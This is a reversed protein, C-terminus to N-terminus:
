GLLLSPDIVVKGGDLEAVALDNAADIEAEMEADTLGSSYGRDKAYSKNLETIIPAWMETDDIFQSLRRKKEPDPSSPVTYFSGHQVIHGFRKADEVLGFYKKPGQAYSLFMESQYFPKVIRNKVTLFRLISANFHQGEAKGNANKENKKSCQIILHAAYVVGRGGGMPKVKTAHMAAPDDYTHNILICSTDSKLAPIILAKVLSNIKKARGGMESVQKGKEVADVMTKDTVLMGLSDLICLFKADPNDKKYESLKKYTTLLKVACDEVSEVLVHEIKDPDCGRSEFFEVLGGGESDFYFIVDYDEENLANAAINAAIFSKGSNHSAIGGAFYRHNEHAVEIDYCMEKTKLDEIHTVAAPYVSGELEVKTIDYENLDKVFVFKEIGENETDTLQLAHEAACELTLKREKEEFTGDEQEVSFKSTTTVSWIDQEGKEFFNAIRVLGDPSSVFLGEHNGNALLKIPLEKECMQSMLMVKILTLNTLNRGIWEYLTIDKPRDKSFSASLLKNPISTQSVIEDSTFGFEVLTEVAHMFSQGKSIDSHEAYGEQNMNALDQKDSDAVVNLYHDSAIAETYHDENFLSKGYVHLLTDGTICQSEGALIIIKGSPVGRDTSGSIISNLAMDGTSIWNKIVGYSSETFSASDTKKRIDKMLSKISM